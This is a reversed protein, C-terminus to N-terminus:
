CANVDTTTSTRFLITTYLLKLDDQYYRPAFAGLYRLNRLTQTRLRLKNLHTTVHLTVQELISEHISNTKAKCLDTALHISNRDNKVIVQLLKM